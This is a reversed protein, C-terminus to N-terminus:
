KLITIVLNFLSFLATLVIAIKALFFSKEAIGMTKSATESQIQAIRIQENILEMMKNVSLRDMLRSIFELDAQLSSIIDKLKQLAESKWKPGKEIDHYTDSDTIQVFLSRAINQISRYKRFFDNIVPEHQTEDLFLPSPYALMKKEFKKVIQLGDYAKLGTQSQAQSLLEQFPDIDSPATVIIRPNM